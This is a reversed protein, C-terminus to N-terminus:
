GYGVNLCSLELTSPIVPVNRLSRGTQNLSFCADLFRSAVGGFAGIEEFFCPEPDLTRLKSGNGGTSIFFVPFKNKSNKGYDVAFSPASPAKQDKECIYGEIGLNHIPNWLYGSDPTFAKSLNRSLNKLDMMKRAHITAMGCYRDKTGYFGFSIFHLPAPLKARGM